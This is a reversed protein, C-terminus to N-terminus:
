AALKEFDLAYRESQHRSREKVLSIDMPWIPNTHYMHIETSGTREIAACLEELSTYFSIMYYQARKGKPAIDVHLAAYYKNQLYGETLKLVKELTSWHVNIFDKGHVTLTAAKIIPQPNWPLALTASAGVLLKLFTRRNM